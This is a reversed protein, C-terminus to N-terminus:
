ITRRRTVARVLLVLLVAVLISAAWDVGTTEPFITGALWGGIVAGVIGLLITALLGMTNRGPVLLRAILGVILGVVIYGLISQIDTDGDGKAAVLLLAAVPIAPRVLRM